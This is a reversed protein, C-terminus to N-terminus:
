IEKLTRIKVKPTAGLKSGLVKLVVQSGSAYVFIDWFVQTKQEKANGPVTEDASPVANGILGM